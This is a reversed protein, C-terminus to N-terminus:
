GAFNGTCEVHRRHNNSAVVRYCGLYVSGLWHCPLWIAENSDDHVVCLACSIIRRTCFFNRCNFVGRRHQYWRLEDDFEYDLLVFFLFIRLRDRLRLCFIKKINTRTLDADLVAARLRGVRALEM